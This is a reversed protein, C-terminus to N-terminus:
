ACSLHLVKVRCIVFLRLRSALMNKHAKLSGSVTLLKRLNLWGSTGIRQASIRGFLPPIGMRQRRRVEPLCGGGYSGVKRRPVHRCCLDQSVNQPGYGLRITPLQFAGVSEVTM